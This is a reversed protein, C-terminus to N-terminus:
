SEIITGGWTLIFEMAKEKEVIYIRKRIANFDWGHYFIRDALFTKYTLEKINERCWDVCEEMNATNNLQIIICM